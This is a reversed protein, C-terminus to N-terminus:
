KSHQQYYSSHGHFFDATKKELIKGLVITFNCNETTLMDKDLDVDEDMDIRVDKVEVTMQPADKNYGM